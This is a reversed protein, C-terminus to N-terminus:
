LSLSWRRAQEELRKLWGKTLRQLTEERKRRYDETDIIVKVFSEKEKDKNVVLSVLYQLSDADARKEGIIVGM